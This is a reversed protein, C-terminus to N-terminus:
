VAEPSTCATTGATVRSSNFTQKFGLARQNFNFYKYKESEATNLVQFTSMTIHVTHGKKKNYFAVASALVTYIPQQLGISLTLISYISCRHVSHAM